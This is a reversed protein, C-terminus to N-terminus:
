TSQQAEFNLTNKLSLNRLYESISTDVKDRDKDGYRPKAKSSASMTIQMADYKSTSTYLMSSELNKPAQDVKAKGKDAYTTKTNSSTLM